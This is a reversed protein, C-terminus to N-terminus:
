TGDDGVKQLVQTSCFKAGYYIKQQTLAMVQHMFSFRPICDRMRTTNKQLDASLLDVLYLYQMNSMRIYDRCKKPDDRVEQFITHFAGFVNRKELLPQVWCKRKSISREQDDEDLLLLALIKEDDIDTM